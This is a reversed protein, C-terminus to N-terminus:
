YAFLLPKNMLYEYQEKIFDDLNLIKREKQIHKKFIIERVEYEKRM